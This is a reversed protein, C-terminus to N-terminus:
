QIGNMKIWHYPQEKLAIEGIKDYKCVNKEKLIMHSM